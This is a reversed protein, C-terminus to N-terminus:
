IEPAAFASKCSKSSFMNKKELLLLLFPLYQQCLRIIDNSTNLTMTQHLFGKLGM